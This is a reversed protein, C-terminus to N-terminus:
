TSAAGGSGNGDFFTNLDIGALESVRERLDDIAPNGTEERIICPLKQKEWLWLSGLDM